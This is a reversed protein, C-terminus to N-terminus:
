DAAIADMGLYDDFWERIHNLREVRQSPRGIRSLGHSAEPFIVLKAEKQQMRLAMYFQQTQELPTRWDQESHILLLPTNVRDVFRIPSRELYQLPDEWPPASFWNRVFFAALDATGAFSHWNTVSRQAVAAAFRDTRTITWTTLLGGGSGGTVGLREPDVYGQELLWDVGAMLDKYDDGPYRYQIINGFAQGYGTSGRPNTILVVYGADALTQFEHFFTTGYMIHPGGHIYLIAPYRQTPDFDDPRIVWGQIRLGDFSEYWVEEYGPLERDDLHAANLTTLQQWLRRDGATNKPATYVQFASQPSGWVFAIRGGGMSFEAMDGARYDTIATVQGSRRDIRAIQTQGENATTFWLSASDAAWAVREGNPAPALMDGSTGDGIARDYDGSLLREEGGGAPMVYLETQSYSFPRERHETGTFAIWRGDPSVMPNGRNRPGQTLQEPAGPDDVAVRYIHSQPRRWDADEELLAAFLLHRGDASWAPQGHEHDGHTIRRPAIPWNDNEDVEVVWLQQREEPLYDARGDAQYILRTIVAPAPASEKTQGDELGRVERQRRTAERQEAQQAEREAETLARSLFAIRQGNPSWVPAGAGGPLDTLRRAEGGRLDIIWIQADGERGSLFAIRTGDPSWRPSVDSVRHTTLPAHRGTAFDKLWLDSRYRDRERDVETRTYVLREGDPSLRADSAWTWHWLSEATLRPADALVLVPLLLCLALILRPM